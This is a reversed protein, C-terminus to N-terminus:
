LSGGKIIKKRFDFFVDFFGLLSLFSFASLIIFILIFSQMFVYKKLLINLYFVMVGIGQFFYVLLFVYFFISAFMALYLSSSYPSNIFVFLAGSFIAPWLFKYSVKYFILKKISISSRDKNVFRFSVYFNLIIYLSFVVIFVAPLNIALDKILEQKSVTQSLIQKYLDLYSAELSSLVFNIKNLLFNILSEKEYILIITIFIAYSSFVFYLSKLVLEKFLYKKKYLYSVAVLVYVVFIFFIVLYTFGGLVFVILSNFILNLYFYFSGYKFLVILPISLSFLTFFSSYFVFSNIVALIFVLGLLKQEKFNIM